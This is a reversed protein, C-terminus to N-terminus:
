GIIKNLFNEIDDLDYESNEEGFLIMNKKDERSYCYEDLLPLIDNEWISILDETDKVTFLYSHGIMKDKGLTREKTIRENIKKIANVSKELLSKTGAEMKELNENEKSDLVIDLRPLLEVFGFRRRLAIDLLAISRDATNMTSIIYINQPVSFKDGTTPLTVTFENKAGLRKDPELLTILEGFIKAIDGRNIEDIILIFKPANEWDVVGSKEYEGYVDKWNLGDIDNDWGKDLAAKLAKACFRKFLGSKRIYKLEGEQDETSVTLGEIFEEYCYSPHFTVFEIQGRKKYKNYIEKVEVQSINKM